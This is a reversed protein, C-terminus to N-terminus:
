PKIRTCNIAAVRHAVVDAFLSYLALACFLAALMAATLLFGEFVARYRDRRRATRQADLLQRTNTIQQDVQQDHVADDLEEYVRGGYTVPHKTM